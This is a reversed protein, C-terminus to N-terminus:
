QIDFRYSGPIEEQKGERTVATLKLAYEGRPIDSAPIAVIVIQENQDVVNVPKKDRQNDLQVEFRTGPDFRKPLQLTARLEGTNSPLTVRSPLPNAGESARTPLTYALAISYSSHPQPRFVSLAVVIIVAASAATVIMWRHTNFFSRLRELRSSPQELGELALAVSRRERGETSILYHREFWQRESKKLEGAQYEEILEGKSIELEEFLDDEVMLREEIEQQENENLQGLLYERIRTQDHDSLAM